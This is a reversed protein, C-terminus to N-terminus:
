IEWYMIFEDKMWFYVAVVKEYKRNNRYEKSKYIVWYLYVNYYNRGKIFKMKANCRFNKRTFIYKAWYANVCYFLLKVLHLLYQICYFLTCKIYSNAIHRKYFFCWLEFSLFFNALEALKKSAEGVGELPPPAFGLLPDYAM